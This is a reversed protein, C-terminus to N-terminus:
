RRANAPASTSSSTNVSEAQDAETARIAIGGLLVSQLVLVGFALAYGIVAGGAAVADIRRYGFLWIWTSLIALIWVPGNRLQLRLRLGTVAQGVLPALVVSSILILFPPLILLGLALPWRGPDEIAAAKQVFYLNGAVVALGFSLLAAVQLMTVKLVSRLNPKAKLLLTLVTILFAARIPIMLVLLVRSGDAVRVGAYLDLPPPAFLRSLDGAGPDRRGTLADLAFLALCGIVVLAVM